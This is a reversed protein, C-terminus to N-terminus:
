PFCRHYYRLVTELKPKGKFGRRKAEKLAEDFSKFTEAKGSSFEILMCEPAGSNVIVMKDDFTLHTVSELVIEQKPTYRSLRGYTTQEYMEIDYPYVLPFRWYDYGGGDSYFYAPVDKRLEQPVYSQLKKRYAIRQMCCVYVLLVVIVGLAIGVDLWKRAFNITSPKNSFWAILLPLIILLFFVVLMAFAILILSAFFLAPM